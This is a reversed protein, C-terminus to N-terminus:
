MYSLGNFIIGFSTIKTMLAIMQKYQFNNRLNFVREKTTKSWYITTNNHQSTYIHCLVSIMKHSKKCIINLLMTSIM